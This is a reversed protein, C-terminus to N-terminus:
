HMSFPLLQISVKAAVSIYGDLVSPWTCPVEWVIHWEEDFGYVELTVQLCDSNQSHCHSTANKEKLLIKTM